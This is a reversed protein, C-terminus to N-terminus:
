AAADTLNRQIRAWTHAPRRLGGRSRERGAERERRRERQDGVADALDLRAHRRQDRRQQEAHQDRVDGAAARHERGARPERGAPHQPDADRQEAQADRELQDAVDAPAADQHRDGGDANVSGNVTQSPRRRPTEGASDSSIPAPQPMQPAAATTAISGIASAFSSSAPKASAVTVARPVIAISASGTSPVLARPSDSSSKPSHAPPLTCSTAWTTPAAPPTDAPASATAVMTFSVRTTSSTGTITTVATM